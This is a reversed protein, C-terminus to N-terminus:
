FLRPGSLAIEESCYQTYNEFNEIFRQALHRYKTLYEKDNPWSSAPDLIEEPVGKCKQPIEFGFVPDVIYDMDFLSGDLAATLLRRTHEISIRHGTGYPGSIWGTNLLWCNVGNQEIKKQLLETYLSPHHVMFPAGYCASFTIEPETGLGVETGGVKATYGSIFHYLAQNTTLRAIPPMVGLADCTLLIINKPHNAINEFTSNGIYRLPYSARTNETIEDNSLDIIRTSPDYMVNELITGFRQTCAYIEPEAVPSLRIVKAYCGGEFNFVGHDSWGHEDDGILRRNTDASLSTKGTGSLGFYLAVDGQEGESASCHMPLIGEFPLIYNLVTFVSKKIEGSYATGCILCLKKEFDLIIFTGSNTEDISPIANFSPVCLITFDPVYQRYEDLDKPQIFMNLAFLSHWANETIVRVSIRHAPDAGAYCDQVFLDRGELYAQLRIFLQSFKEKSFAQNNEGWSVHEASPMQCVIFKDKAARATHLGTRVVVPGEHAITGERRLIIEEYLPEVPPNWYVRNLKSLGHNQLGFDSKLENRRYQPESSILRSM